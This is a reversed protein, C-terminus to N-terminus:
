RGNLRMAQMATFPTGVRTLKGAANLHAAIDAYSLRQVRLDRVMQVIAQEAEVSVLTAGRGKGEVRFGYPAQGGIHGGRQRKGVRGERMRDAIRSKEFEAVSALISFFLKGVGNDSVPETSCDVLILSVGRKHWAEVTALADSASRFIRDLKSAIVLTGPALAEVLKHGEQRDALPIAGSVGKDAFLMVNTHGHIMAAGRVAQEQTALSSRDDSAQEATSVRVYAVVKTFTKAMVAGEYCLQDLLVTVVSM